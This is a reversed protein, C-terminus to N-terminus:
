MINQWFRWPRTSKRKTVQGQITEPFPKELIWPLQIGFVSFTFYDGKQSNPSAFGDTVAISLFLNDYIDIEYQDMTAIKGCVTYDVQIYDITDNVDVSFIEDPQSIEVGFESLFEELKPFKGKIQTYYNKCITTM